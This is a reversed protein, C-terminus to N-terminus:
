AAAIEMADIRQDAAGSQRPGVVDQDTAVVVAAPHRDGEALGLVFRRGEIQGMEAVLAGFAAGVLHMDVQEGFIGVRARQHLSIQHGGM